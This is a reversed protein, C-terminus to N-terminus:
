RHSCNLMDVSLNPSKEVYPNPHRVVSCNGLTFKFTWMSYKFTAQDVNTLQSYEQYPEGIRFYSITAGAPSTKLSITFTDKGSEAITNYADRMNTIINVLTSLYPGLSGDVPSPRVMVSDTRSAQALILKPSTSNNPSASNSGSNNAAPTTAMTYAQLQRDFDEFFIPETEGQAISAHYQTRTKKNQDRATNAVSVLYLRFDHTEAARQDVRTSLQDLILTVNASANLLIQKQSLSITAVGSSPYVNTDPISVIEVDPIRLPLDRMRQGGPPPGVRLTTTSFVGSDEDSPVNCPLDGEAKTPDYTGNCSITIPSTPAPVGQVAKYDFRVWLGAQYNPSPSVSVKIHFTQGAAVKNLDLSGVSTEQATAIHLTLGAIIPITFVYRKQM